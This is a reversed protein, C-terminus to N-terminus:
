ITKWEDNDKRRGRNCINNWLFVTSCYACMSFHKKKLKM